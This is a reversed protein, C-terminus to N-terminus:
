VQRPLNATIVHFRGSANCAAAEIHARVTHHSTAMCSTCRNSHDARCAVCCVAIKRTRYTCPKRFRYNVPPILTPCGATTMHVSWVTHRLMMPTSHMGARCNQMRGSRACLSKLSQDHHCRCVHISHPAALAMGCQRDAYSWGVRCAHSANRHACEQPPLDATHVGAKLYLYLSSAPLNM